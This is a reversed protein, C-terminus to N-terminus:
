DIGISIFYIRNNHKDIGIVNKFYDWTSAKGKKQLAPEQLLYFVMDEGVHLALVKRLLENQDFTKWKHMIYDEQFSIEEWFKKVSIETYDHEDLEIFLYPGFEDKQYSVPGAGSFKKYAMSSQFIGFAKLLALAESIGKVEESTIEFQSNLKTKLQLKINSM